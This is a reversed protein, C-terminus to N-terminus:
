RKGKKIKRYAMTGTFDGFPTLKEREEEPLKDFARSYEEVDLIEYGLDYVIRELLKSKLKLANVLKSTNTMYTVLLQRFPAENVEEKKKWFM